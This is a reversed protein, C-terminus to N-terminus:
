IARGREVDEYSGKSRFTETEPQIKAISIKVSLSNDQLMSFLKRASFHVNLCQRIGSHIHFRM